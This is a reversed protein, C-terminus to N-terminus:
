PFRCTIQLPVVALWVSYSFWICFDYFFNKYLKVIIKTYTCYPYKYSMQEVEFRTCPGRLNTFIAWFKLEFIDNTVSDFVKFNPPWNIYKSANWFTNSDQFKLQHPQLAYSCYSQVDYIDAIYFFTLIFYIDAEVTKDKFVINFLTLNIPLLRQVVVYISKM